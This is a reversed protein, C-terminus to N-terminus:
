ISNALLVRTNDEEQKFDQIVETKQKIQSLLTAEEVKRIENSQILDGAESMFTQKLQNFTEKQEVTLM